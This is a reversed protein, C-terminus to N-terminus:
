FVKENVCSTTRTSFVAVFSLDRREGMLDRGVLIPGTLDAAYKGQVNPTELQISCTSCVDAYCHRDCHLQSVGIHPLFGQKM